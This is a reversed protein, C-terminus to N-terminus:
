LRRGDVRTVGELVPERAIGGGLFGALFIGSKSSVYSSSSVSGSRSFGLRTLFRLRVNPLSSPEGGGSTM